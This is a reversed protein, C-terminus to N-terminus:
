EGLVVSHAGASALCARSEADANVCLLCGGHLELRRAAEDIVAGARPSRLRAAELDLVVLSASGSLADMLAYLRGVDARGFSGAPRVTATLWPVDVQDLPHASASRAPSAAVAPSAALATSM